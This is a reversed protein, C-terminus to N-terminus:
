FKYPRLVRIESIHVVMAYLPFLERHLRELLLDAKDPALIVEVQINAFEAIDGPRSGAAGRGEVPFLTYGHAGCADAMSTVLDRALAECIITILSTPHTTM